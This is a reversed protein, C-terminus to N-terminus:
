KAISELSESIADSIMGTFADTIANAITSFLSGIIIHGCFVTEESTTKVGSRAPLNNNQIRTILLSLAREDLNKEFLSEYDYKLACNLARTTLTPSSQENVYESVAGMAIGTCKQNVSGDKNKLAGEKLFKELAKGSEITKDAKEIGEVIIDNFEPFQTTCEALISEFPLGNKSEDAHVQLAIFMVALTLLTKMKNIRQTKSSQYPSVKSNM